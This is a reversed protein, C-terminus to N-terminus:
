TIVPAVHLDEAKMLLEIDDPPRHVHLEGSWWGEGALNALRELEIAVKAPGKDAVAFSGKRLAYEPGRECEYTYEGAALDLSVTGPCVFHDHWFPLKAARQPKGAADRVHLRCAVPQGSAKDTITIEVAGARGQSPVVGVQWFVLFWTAVPLF